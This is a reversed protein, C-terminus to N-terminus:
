FKTVDYNYEDVTGPQLIYDEITGDQQPVQMHLTNGVITGRLSTQTGLESFSFVISSGSVEVSISVSFPSDGQNKATMTGSLSGDSSRGINVMTASDSDTGVYIGPGFGIRNGPDATGGSSGCGAVVLGCAALAAMRRIM